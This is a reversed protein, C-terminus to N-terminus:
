RNGTYILMILGETVTLSEFLYRRMEPLCCNIKNAIFRRTLVLEIVLLETNEEQTAQFCSGQLITM